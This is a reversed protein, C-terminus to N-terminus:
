NSEEEEAAVNKNETQMTARLQLDPVGVLSSKM